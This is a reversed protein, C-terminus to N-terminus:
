FEITQGQALRAIRYHGGSALVERMTLEQDAPKLHTILIQVQEPRALQSLAAILQRPSFHRSVEALAQEHDAFATEIILTALQPLANVAGWFEACDATDGSFVLTSHGSDLAYALAPVTHRVPLATIGCGAASRTEGAEFTCLRLMGAEPSPIATFDPWIRWNFVHERLAALTASCGHVTIPQTRKSFVTDILMPLCAIHDMHAHTLFVHDIQALEDMTLEGLGTGADILVHRGLLLATTRNGAGIGGSCGLIRLQM